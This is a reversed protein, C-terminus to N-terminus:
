EPRRAINDRDRRGEASDLARELKGAAGNIAQDITAAHHTVTAPPRGEIRAEMLCRKDDKGGKAGNEDSLHVEVRTVRDAFRSLASQVVGTVHVTLGERGEVSSDTRVQVQM